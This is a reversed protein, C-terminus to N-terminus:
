IFLLATGFIICILLSSNKTLNILFSVLRQSHLHKLIPVNVSDCPVHISDWVNLGCVRKATKHYPVSIKRFTQRQLNHYNSETGYFCSSYSRSLFSLTELNIYDFRYYLSNFPRLSCNTVRDIDNSPSLDESFVIGLYACETNLKQLM